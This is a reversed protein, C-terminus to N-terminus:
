RVQGERRQMDFLRPQYTELLFQLNASLLDGVKERVTRRHSGALHPPM